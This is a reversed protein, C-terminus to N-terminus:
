EQEGKSWTARGEEYRRFVIGQTKNSNSTKEKLYDGMFNVDHDYEEKTYKSIDKCKNGYRLILKDSYYGNQINYCSVLLCIGQKTVLYFGLDEIPVVSDLINEFFDLEDANVYNKERVGMVQINEFDAFVLECCDQDHESILKKGNDFLIETANISVIKM